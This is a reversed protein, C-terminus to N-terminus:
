SLMAENLDIYLRMTDKDYYVRDKDFFYVYEGNYALNIPIFVSEVYEKVNDITAKGNKPRVFNLIKGNGAHNFEVKMYITKGSTKVEEKDASFMYINAGESSKAMDFENTVTFNSHSVGNNMMESYKEGSDIFITNFNYLSNEILDNTKYFSTRIFSETFKKKRYLIDEDLFAIDKYYTGSNGSNSDFMSTRSREGETWIAGLPKFNSDRKLFHMTYTVSTVMSYNLGDFYTPKYKMKEMDIIGPVQKEVIDSLIHELEGESIFGDYDVNSDLGLPITYYDKYLYLKVYHDESDVIKGEYFINELNTEGSFIIKEGLVDIVDIDYTRIINENTEYVSEGNFVVGDDCYNPLKKTYELPEGYEEAIIKDGNAIKIGLPRIEGVNTESNYETYDNDVSFGIKLIEGDNINIKYIDM